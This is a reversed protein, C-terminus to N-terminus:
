EGVRVFACKLYDSEPLQLAFPHDVSARTTEELWTEREVAVAAERVCGLFTERDVNYSCSASVLIAGPDLMSLARRNLERYGRLAGEVERKNRAFAPPDIVILDYREGQESRRRLDHMANAREFRVRDAVGNREANRLVREGLAESQDLCVVSSAGRLAARIGFLGDYSFADLVRAGGAVRAAYRAARRRNASQDLYHGTKHGETLSVEYVLAPDEGRAEERVEIPGPDEGRIWEVRQDLAELKRVSTDSRDLVARVEFPLAELILELLFDRMRDASQCGSQICLTDAYRDVVLGPLGESDGAVLRCAGDRELLGSRARHAVAAEVRAAWFARNPQEPSRTVLRVSIKSHSSFMGWGLPGENPDFIPLLEGPEGEGERVDDQYVWPHGSLVRRRGRGTLIIKGM